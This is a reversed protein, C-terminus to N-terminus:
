EWGAALPRFSQDGVFMQNTVSYVEFVVRRGDADLDGQAQAVFWFDTTPFGRVGPATNPPGAVTRYQFLVPGDPNAGLQNWAGPTGGWGM